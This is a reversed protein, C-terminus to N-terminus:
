DMMTDHSKQAEQRRVWEALVGLDEGVGLVKGIRHEWDGNEEEGEGDPDQVVQVEGNQEVLFQIKVTESKETSKAPVPILITLQPTPLLILSVDINLPHEAEIKSFSHPPHSRTPSSTSVSTNTTSRGMKTNADMDWDSSSSESDTSTDSETDSNEAKQNRRPAPTKKPSYKSSQSGLFSSQTSPQSSTHISGQAKSLSTNEKAPTATPPPTPFSRKLIDGLFAWQRLFPLVMGIQRPHVFPIEKIEHASESKGTFFTYKHPKFTPETTSKPDSFTPIKRTFIRTDMSLNLKLAPHAKADPFLLSMYTTSSTEPWPAGVAAYINQAIQLPVVVPPDLRMVFRIDPQNNDLTMTDPAIPPASSNKYTLPPELWDISSSEPSTFLDDSLDLEKEVNESVWASSVRISPYLSASSAECDIAATWTKPKKEERSREPNFTDMEGSKRKRGPVLRRQVWYELHLGVKGKIHMQPMGSKKCMIEREAADEVRSEPLERKVSEIEWDAVKKLSTYIGDIADFCSVGERGLKDLNALSELNRAFNDLLVYWGHEFGELDKKLVEAGGAAHKGSSEGSTPFSLVVSNVVEGKFEVDVLLGQGAISLTRNKELGGSGTFSAGAGGGDEWLCELGLRRACREVGEQSVRGWSKGLVGVISNMRRRWEQEKDRVVLGGVGTGALSGDLLGGAGGVGGIGLGAGSLGPTSGTGSGLTAGPKPTGVGTGTGSRGRGMKVAELMGAAPSSGGVSKPTGAANGGVNPTGTSGHPTSSLQPTKGFPSKGSKTVSVNNVHLYAPSPVSRPASTPPSSASPTLAPTPGTPRPQQKSASSPLHGQLPKPTSM